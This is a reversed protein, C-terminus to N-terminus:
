IASFYTIFEKFLFLSANILNVDYIVNHVCTYEAEHSYLMQMFRAQRLKKM